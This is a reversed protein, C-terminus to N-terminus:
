SFVIRVLLLHTSLLVFWVAIKHQGAVPIADNLEQRLHWYPFDWSYSLYKDLQQIDKLQDNDLTVSFNNPAIPILVHLSM